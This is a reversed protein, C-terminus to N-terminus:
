LLYGTQLCKRAIRGEIAELVEAEEMPEYWERRCLGCRWQRLRSDYGPAPKWDTKVAYCCYERATIEIVRWSCYPCRRRIM